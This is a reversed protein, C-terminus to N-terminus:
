NCDGYHWTCHIDFWVDPRFDRVCAALAKTEPHTFATYDRNHDLPQRNKGQDGAVSGDYDVFPVVVLRLNRRLWEGLEDEAFYAAAFGEVVYTAVAESCHHRSTLVMRYPADVPGFTARPVAAGKRSTCLADTTFVSGRRDAHGALFEEWMEPTYPLCEYFWTEQEEPGFTYTFSKRTAGQEASYAYTKGRDTSVVPGRVGVAVSKTFDFTLTRGEAGTVRMAWYFWDGKTDRLEQHVFVRDGDMREFAINGAPLNADVTVAALLLLSSIM